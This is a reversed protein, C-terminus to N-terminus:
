GNRSRFPVVAADRRFEIIALPNIKLGVCPSVASVTDSKSVKMFRIM